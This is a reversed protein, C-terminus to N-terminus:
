CLFLVHIGAYVPLTVSMEKRTQWGLLGRSAGYEEPLIDMYNQWESASGRCRELILLVCLVHRPDNNREEYLQRHARPNGYTYSACLMTFSNPKRLSDLLNGNRRKSRAEEEHSRV